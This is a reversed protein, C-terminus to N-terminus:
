SLVPVSDRSNRDVPWLWDYQWIRLGHPCSRHLSPLLYKIQSYDLSGCRQHALKFERSFSSLIISEANTVLM